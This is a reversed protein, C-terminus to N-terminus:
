RTAPQAIPTEPVPPEEFTHGAEIDDFPSKKLKCNQDFELSIREGKVDLAGRIDFSYGSEDYDISAVADAPAGKKIAVLWFDKISCKPDEIFKPVSTTPTGRDLDLGKNSYSYSRSVGGGMSTVHRWQGPEYVDATVPEYWKGEKTGGAGIPPAEKPPTTLERYFEYKVTPRYNKATLDMTGDSRVYAIDVSTIKAGPDIHSRIDDIALYPAFNKTDSKLEFTEEFSSTLSTTAFLMLAVFGGIMLFIFGIGIMTYSKAKGLPNQFQNFQSGGFQNGFNNGSSNGPQTNEFQNNQFGSQFKNMDFGYMKLFSKAFPINQLKSLNQQIKAKLEPPLDNLSNYNKGNAHFQQNIFVHPEGGGNANTINVAEDSIDPIGNHNEDKLIKKMDEPLDDFNYEKGNLTIKKPM